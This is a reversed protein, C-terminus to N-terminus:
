YVREREKFRWNMYPKYCDPCSKPRRVETM